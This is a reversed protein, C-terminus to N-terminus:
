RAQALPGPGGLEREAREFHPCNAPEIWDERLAQDFNSLIYNELELSQRNQSTFYTIHAKVDKRNNNCAVM